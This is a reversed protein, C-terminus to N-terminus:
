FGKRSYLTLGEKKLASETTADIKKIIQNKNTEIATIRGSMTGPGLHRAAMVGFTSSSIDQSNVLLFPFTIVLTILLKKM